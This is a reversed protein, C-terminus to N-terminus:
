ATLKDIFPALKKDLTEGGDSILRMSQVASALSARQEATLKNICANLSASFIADDTFYTTCHENFRQRTPAMNHKTLEQLYVDAVSDFLAKFKMASSGTQHILCLAGFLSAARTQHYNSM